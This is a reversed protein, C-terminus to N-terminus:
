DAPSAGWEPRAAARPTQRVGRVLYLAVAAAVGLAANLALAVEYGGALEYLLGDGVAGAGFGINMFTFLAGFVAGLHRRGYLDAAIAATLPTTATWSVGLVVAYAFLLDDGPLLLLLGFAVGRLGYTLALISSRGLRDAAVGLLLSGVVSFVATVAVANAAHLPAMGMDDAYAIFHTNPFAMTWGCVLFGFALAWFAPTRAAERVGVGETAPAPRGGAATQGSSAPADRLLLLGLPVMAVLLVAALLRYTTRWDTL